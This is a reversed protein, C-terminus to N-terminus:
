VVGIAQLFVKCMNGNVQPQNSHEACKRLAQSFCLAATNHKHQAHQVSGMNSLMAIQRGADQQSDLSPKASGARSDLSPKEPSLPGQAVAHTPNLTLIKAAKRYCQKRLELQAKLSIGQM